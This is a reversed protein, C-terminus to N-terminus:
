RALRDTRRERARDVLDGVTRALVGVLVGAGAMALVLEIGIM